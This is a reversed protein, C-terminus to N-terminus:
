RAQIRALYDVLATMRSRAYWDPSLEGEGPQIAQARYINGWVPMERSGHPGFEIASRGDITEFVRASPFVGGNRRLLTTLDSPVKVLHRALPGDGKASAGHCSACSNTYEYRGLDFGAQAAAVLPLSLAIASVFRKISHM